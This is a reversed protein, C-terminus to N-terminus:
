DYKNRAIRATDGSVLYTEIDKNVNEIFQKFNTNKAVLMNLTRTDLENERAEFVIKESQLEIVGIGFSANLRELEDLVREDIKYAVLYGYNAFTSNSVAQFYCEKLNASVIARKLEFSYLKYDAKNFKRLLDFAVNDYDDFPFRIAVIDPHIWENLGKQTPKSTNANITKCYIDFNETAFKVLLPHLDIEQFNKEIDQLEKAQIEQRKQEIESEKDVIESKRSDLWFTMPHKSVICFPSDAHNKIDNTLAVRMTHQPTKGESRIQKDLGMAKASDWIESYSLPIEAKSLVEKALELFTM